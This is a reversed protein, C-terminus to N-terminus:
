GLTLYNDLFSANDFAFGRNMQAMVDLGLRFSKSNPPYLREAFDLLTWWHITVSYRGVAPWQLRQDVDMHGDADLILFFTKDFRGAEDHYVELFNTPHLWARSDFARVLTARADEDPTAENKGGVFRTVGPSSSHVLGLTRWNVGFKHFIM